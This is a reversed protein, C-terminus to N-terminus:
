FNRWSQAKQQLAYKLFSLFCSLSSKTISDELCASLHPEPCYHLVDPHGLFYRHIRFLLNWFAPFHCIIKLPFSVLAKMLLTMM